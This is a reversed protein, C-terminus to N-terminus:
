SSSDKAAPSFRKLPFTVCRATASAWSKLYSLKSLHPAYRLKTAYWSRSSPTGPEFGPAGFIQSAFKPATSCHLLLFSPISVGSRDMTGNIWLVHPTFTHLNLRELFGPFNLDKSYRVSLALPHNKSQGPDDAWSGTTPM